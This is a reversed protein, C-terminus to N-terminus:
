PAPTRKLRHLSIAPMALLALFTLQFGQDFLASPSLVLVAMAAFGTANLASRARYLLRTMLFLALMLVARQIPVGMAAIYAYFVALGITVLSAAWEPCRLRRALWFVAFALLAVNMGSVVLLHYVGTKQFEERVDRLLWSDDGIIMASFLAADDNGWLGRRRMHELISQRIRSRWFGLRSGSEGPLVEIDEAKVSALASIGIGRLYGEYD